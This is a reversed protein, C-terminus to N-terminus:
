PSSLWTMTRFVKNSYRRNKDKLSGNYRQLAAAMNGKSLKLYKSLIRTGVSINQQPQYLEHSSVGAATLTDPHYRPIAQMLGMAGASSHAKPDFSSETAILALVLLPDLGERRAEQHALAVIQAARPAPVRYRQAIKASL